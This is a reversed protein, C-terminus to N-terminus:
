ADSVSRVFLYLEASTALSESLSSVEGTSSTLYGMRLPTAGALLLDRTDDIRELSGTGTDFRSVKVAM